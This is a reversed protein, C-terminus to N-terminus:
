KPLPCEVDFGSRREVMERASTHGAQAARCYWRYALDISAGVGWGNAYANGIAHMANSDGRDAARRFWELSAVDNGETGYGHSLVFGLAYQSQVLGARASRQILEFGRESDRKLGKAQLLRMGLAYDARPSGASSASELLAVIRTTEKTGTERELLLALDVSAEADNQAAAKELWNRASERANPSGEALMRRAMMLQAPAYGADAATAIVRDRAAVADTAQDAKLLALLFVSEPLSASALELWRQAAARQASATSTNELLLVALRHQAEPNGKRASEEFCALAIERSAVLSGVPAALIGCYLGASPSTKALAQLEDFALKAEATTKASHFKRVALNVKTDDPAPAAAPPVNPQPWAPAAGLGSLAVVIAMAVLWNREHRRRPMSSAAAMDPLNLVPTAVVDMRHVSRCRRTVAPLGPKHKM